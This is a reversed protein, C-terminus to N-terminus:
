LGLDERTFISEFIYNRQTFNERAGELRDVIAIVKSIKIGREEVAEIAKLSSGGTTIVDDVIAVSWDKKLLGEVKKETGHGKKEARVAFSQIPHGESFSVVSVASVIPVAGLALGGVADINDKRLMEFLIKGILYLGESNFTIMKGDIYYQSTRGSVLKREGLIVAKEKILKLLREKSKKIDM